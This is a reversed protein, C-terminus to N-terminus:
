KSIRLVDSAVQSFVQDLQSADEAYVYTGVPRASNYAPSDYTNAVRRMMEDEAAGPGGLGIAFTVVDLGLSVSNARANDAANVLANIGANTLTTADLALRGSGDRYLPTKYGTLSNGNVDVENASGTKTLAVVDSTVSAFNSAYACGSSGPTGSLIVWDPNPAPPPQSEIAKFIGWVQSGAPALVGNRDSKNSCSSTSKIQLNPMHLTNPKGDTFFLIVNLTGPENIAVLQQYGLWYAAASNTVGICSINDIMTPLNVGSRSKFDNAMAFDVRYTTGFTIM